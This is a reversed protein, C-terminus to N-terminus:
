GFLEKQIHEAANIASISYKIDKPIENNSCLKIFRDHLSALADKAGVIEEKLDCTINDGEIQREDTSFNYGVIFKCRTEGLIAEVHVINNIKEITQYSTIETKGTLYMALELEHIMLDFISNETKNEHPLCMVFHLNKNGYLQEEKVTFAPNYRQTHSVLLTINNQAALAELELAQSHNFTLPKEVLVHKGKEILNKTIDYHTESPTAVIYADCEHNTTGGVLDFIHVEIEPHEDRLRKAHLGGMKGLGGYVGVTKIM